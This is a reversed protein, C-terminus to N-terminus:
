SNAALNLKDCFELMKIWKEIEQLRSNDLLRKYGAILQDRLELSETLTLKEEAM